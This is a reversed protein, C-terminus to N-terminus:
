ASPLVPQRSLEIDTRHDQIWAVLQLLHAVFSGGLATLEYEVRPPVEAYATRTIMGDNELAKLTVTLMRHSIGPMAAMLATFRVPGEALCDLTRIPWKEGLRGFMDRVFAVTDESRDCVAGTLPAPAEIAEDM